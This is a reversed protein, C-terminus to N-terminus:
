RLGDEGKVESVTLGGVRPLPRGSDTVAVAVMIENARPADNIQVEMGDFHSRVFAADKHGLPIDLTTGPGSRKKSSPILAAGKSLVKRVPAGMKPHLIAAAHELEGNEGVAAAKGYSHAKAGDIGLAAVARKSLLDGLEEGIEILPSLDEVYYFPRRSPTETIQKTWDIGLSSYITCVVDEPYVSRNKHWGYRTVKNGIDDTAGLIKGGQVGAGAFLATAAYRHHDRGKGMTLEGPTRGFEGMAIVLTRNLLPEGSTANRRSELDTLLNSLAADLNWCLQYQNNKAQKDYANAHLDWGPHCIAIFRTGADASVLNRAIVCADGVDSGGYRKHEDEDVKFISAVQPADLIQNSAEYFEAYDRMLRGRPAEPTRLSADLRALFDRRKNFTLRENQPVIFPLDGKTYISMPAFSAPLMGSQVLGAQGNGYNMAVFPPLWDSDKRRTRTEYAVISGVSPMEKIRAPSFVHGVQIYYQARAHASEWAECSRVLAYKDHMGALRPLLGFPM